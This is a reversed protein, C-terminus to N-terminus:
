KDGVIIKTRIINESTVVILSKINEEVGYKNSMKKNVILLKDFSSDIVVKGKINNGEFDVQNNKKVIKLEKSFNLNFKKIACGDFTDIIELNNKKDFVFKRTHIIPNYGDHNAELIVSNNSESFDILNTNARKGWLFSGLIVSQDNDNISVTNHNITKRYYDRKNRYIHYIFTGPDIFVPAGKYFMQFSLSDAHGHAAIKGFGLEGHDIGILIKKDDSRLISIGGEKYCINNNTEVIKNITKIEFLWNLNECSYDIFQIDLLYNFLGLVYKYYNDIKNIYLIKGEDDDGFVIVENYDGICSKLYTCMKYMMKYWEKPVPLKNNKMLRIMLGMAEMYFAQYHLSNEKNIGDTYNQNNLETNLINLSM